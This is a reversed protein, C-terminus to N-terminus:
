KIRHLNPIDKDSIPLVAFAKTTVASKQDTTRFCFGGNKRCNHKKSCSKDMKCIYAKIM